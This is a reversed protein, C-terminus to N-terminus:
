ILCQENNPSSIAGQDSSGPLVRTIRPIYREDADLKKNYWRVVLLALGLGGLATLISPLNGSWGLPTALLSGAAAGGIFGLLPVLWAMASAQIFSSEPLSLEVRDGAKAQLYNLVEIRMEKGGGLAKCAGAASCSSCAEGRFARVLARNGKTEMVLADETLM